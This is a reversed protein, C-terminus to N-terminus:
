PGIAEFSVPLHAVIRRHTNMAKKASPGPTHTQSASVSSMGVRMREVPMPMAM